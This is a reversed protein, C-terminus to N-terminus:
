LVIEWLYGSRRPNDNECAYLTGDDTAIIDHCQYMTEGESDVVEGLSEFEGKKYFIRILECKGHRGCIGYAVGDETKVLSALRSPRDPAPNFLFRARGVNPDVQYLSGSAGSAYISGDGFNFFGEAKSFGFSGDPLPLGTEFFIMSDSCPDYKCLRAADPGPCDQWARTLSWNSWVCSEDDLAINEGQAMTGYGAGLQALIRAEGTKLSYAGLYEPSFHLLYLIQRNEDLAISQVYVHPLPIGLKQLEDTEPNYKVIAAGPAELYQDPCHLLAPAAYLCDDGAAVLSRHFKADYPDAVRSYNLDVFCDNGRDFAAFIHNEDFCTIGLYIRDDQPRYLACDMSIWGKKWDENALFDKYEWHNEVEDNWQNGFHRDQLRLSRIKM